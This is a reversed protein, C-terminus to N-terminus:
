REVQGDRTYCAVGNGCEQDSFLIFPMAVNVLFLKSESNPSQCSGYSWLTLSSLAYHDTIAKHCLTM